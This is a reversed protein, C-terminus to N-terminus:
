RYGNKKTFSLFLLKFGRLNKIISEFNVSFRKMTIECIFYGLLYFLKLFYSSM